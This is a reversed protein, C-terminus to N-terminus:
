SVGVRNVILFSKVAYLIADRHLIGYLSLYNNKSCILFCIYTYNYFTLNNQSFGCYSLHSRILYRYLFLM